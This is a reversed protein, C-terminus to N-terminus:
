TADIGLSDANPTTRLEQTEGLGARPRSHRNRERGRREDEQERRDAELLPLWLGCLVAIQSYPHPAAASRSGPFGADPGSSPKKSRTADQESYGSSLVVRADARIRRIERFAEEGDMEPMTMDLLVLGIENCHDRYMEVGQRGDPAILVRFGSEALMTEVVERVRADDDVVLITTGESRAEPVPAGSEKDRAVNASAPFLLKFTSGRGPESYVKIAGNHGRVIGQVAALGLGRGIFKTTFFPDFIRQRTEADMGTGTDSVELAVFRGPSLDEGLESASLYRADAEVVGTSLRIMGGKQGLAESANTILNMVVQRVQSADAEIAPLCDALHFQLTAKKSIVTELLHGMETLLRNLEIPCVAFRGGGSYALMQSTLDAARQAATAIRDVYERAPSEPALRLLALDTNGLIAMLLNNFDHAIGAAMVGLSELKQAHQVKAELRHRAEEEQKRDTIDEAFGALRVVQGQEDRVAFSRGSIWRVEGDPRLIRYERPEGDGTEPIRAFSDGAHARDDPHISSEWARYDALLRDAPRGWM